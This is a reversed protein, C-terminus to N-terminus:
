GLPLCEALHEDHLTLIFGSPHRTVLMDPKEDIPQAEDAEWIAVVLGPELPRDLDGLRSMCMEMTMGPIVPRIPQFKGGRLKVEAAFYM